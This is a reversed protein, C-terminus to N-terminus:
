QEVDPYFVPMLFYLAGGVILALISVFFVYGVFGANRASNSVPKILPGFIPLLLPQLLVAVGFVVSAIVDGLKKKQQSEDPRRRYYARVIFWCVSFWGYVAVFALLTNIPSATSSSQQKDNVLTIGLGALTIIDAIFGTIGALLHFKEINSM